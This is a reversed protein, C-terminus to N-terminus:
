DLKKRKQRSAIISNRKCTKCCRTGAKTMYTNDASYEHGHPCHTIARSRERTREGILGRRNNESRSVEELHDPNVCSRNRCLHDLEKGQEVKKKTREYFWRHALRPKGEFSFQGYGTGNQASMWIWCGNPQVEYKEHFRELADKM